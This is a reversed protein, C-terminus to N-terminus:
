FANGNNVVATNQQVPQFSSQALLLQYGHFTQLIGRANKARKEVDSMSQELEKIQAKSENLEKQYGSYTEDEQHLQLRYAKRDKDTGQGKPYKMIVQVGFDMDLKLMKEELEFKKIYLPKLLDRIELIDEMERDLNRMHEDIGMETEFHGIIEIPSLQPNEDRFQIVKWVSSM